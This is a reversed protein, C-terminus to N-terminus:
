AEANRRSLSVLEDTGVLQEVKKYATNRDGIILNVDKHDNNNASKNHDHEVQEQKIDRRISNLFRVIEKTSRHNENIVYHGTDDIPFDRFIKHNAGTFEYISQAKDGIVGIICNTNKLKLLLENQILNTDQYEDIFIYPFKTKLVELIFPNETILM